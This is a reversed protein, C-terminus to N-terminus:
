RGMPSKNIFTNKGNQIYVEDKKPSSIIMGQLNYMTDDKNGQQTASSISSTTGSIAFEEINTDDFASTSITLYGKGYEAAVNRPFIIKKLHKNGKFAHPAIFEVDSPIEFTSNTKESPYRVM